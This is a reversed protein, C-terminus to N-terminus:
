ISNCNLAFVWNGDYILKQIFQRLCSPEGAQVKSRTEVLDPDPRSLLVFGGKLSMTTVILESDHGETESPGLLMEAPWSNWKIEM